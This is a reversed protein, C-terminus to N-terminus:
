SAGDGAPHGADVGAAAWESAALIMGGAMWQLMGVKAGLTVADALGFLSAAAIALGGGFGVARIAAPGSLSCRWARRLLFAVLGWYAFSGVVGVDLLTQLVINHAHAVDGGALRFVARFQNVGVGLWPAARVRDVAGTMIVARDHASRWLGSAQADFAARDLSGVRAALALMPLVIALGILARVWRSPRATVLVGVLLVWVALWATRSRTVALTVAATGAALASLPVLLGLGSGRRLAFVLASIAVPLVLLAAAAVGNPNVDGSEVGALSVQTRGVVELAAEGKVNAGVLGVGLMLLGGLLTAALGLRIGRASAAARGLVTMALMGLCAGAFHSASKPVAPHWGWVLAAGLVAVAAFVPRWRASLWVAALLSAVSLVPLALPGAVSSVQGPFMWAVAGVALIGAAAALPTVDLARDHNM